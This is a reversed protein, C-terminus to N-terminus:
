LLPALAATAFQIRIQLRAAWHRITSYLSFVRSSFKFIINPISNWNVFIFENSSTESNTKTEQNRGTEKQNTKQNKRSQNSARSLKRVLNWPEVTTTLEGRHLCTSSSTAHYCLKLGLDRGLYFIGMGLYSVISYKKMRTINEFAQEAVAYRAPTGLCPGASSRPSRAPASFIKPSFINTM